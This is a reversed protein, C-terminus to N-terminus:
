VRVRKRTWTLKVNKDEFYRTLFASVSAVSAGVIFVEGTTTLFGLLIVFVGVAAAYWSLRLRHKAEAIRNDFYTLLKAEDKYSLTDLYRNECEYSCIPIGLKNDSFLFRRTLKKCATCPSEKRM